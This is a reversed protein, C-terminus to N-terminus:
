QGEGQLLHELMGEKKSYDGNFISRKIKEMTTVVEYQYNVMSINADFLSDISNLVELPEIPMGMAIQVKIMEFNESALRLRSNQSDINEIYSNFNYVLNHLNKKIVEKTAEKNLDIIKGQSAAIRLSSGMGFGLGDQIPIHNFMGGGASRATTSAGLFSFYMEGRLYRLSSKIYGYQNLEPANDLARFIFTDYSISELEDVQPLQFKELEITKDQSIGMIMALSRKETEIINNLVRLDDLLELKRIELFKQVQIPTEGLIVRTNVIALLGEIQEIQINLAELFDIDRLTNTYLLKATMVENAWLARYQEKQALYFLKNQSIRFWNSPVLFPALDQIIDISSAWNIPTELYNWINLRPLLNRKSFTITEKAQYVRQAGELVTFNSEKVNKAIDELSIKQVVEASVLPIHLLLFFLISRKM